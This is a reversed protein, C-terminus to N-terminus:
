KSKIFNESSLEKKEVVEYIVFDTYDQNGILTRKFLLGDINYVSELYSTKTEKKWGSEYVPNLETEDYKDFYTSKLEKIKEEPTESIAPYVTKQTKELKGLSCVPPAYFYESHYEGSRCYNIELILDTEPVIYYVKRSEYDEFSQWGTDKCKELSINAEEPVEVGELVINYKSMIEKLM